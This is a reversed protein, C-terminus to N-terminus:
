AKNHDSSRRTPRRGLGLALTIVLCTFRPRTQLHVAATDLHGALLLCILMWKSMQECPFGVECRIQTMVYMCFDQGLGIVDRGLNRPHIATFGELLM